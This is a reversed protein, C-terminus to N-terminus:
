RDNWPDREEECHRGGDRSIMGCEAERVNASGTLAPSLCRCQYSRDDHCGRGPRAHHESGRARYRVLRQWQRSM